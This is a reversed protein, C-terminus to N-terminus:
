KDLQGADEAFSNIINRSKVDMAKGNKNAFTILLAAMDQLFKHVEVKNVAAPIAIATGGAPATDPKNSGTKAKGKNNAGGRTETTAIGADKLLRAWYQRGSAYAKEQAETRRKPKTTGAGPQAMIALAKTVKDATPDNWRAGITLAIRTAIVQERVKPQNGGASKLAAFEADRNGQTAIMAESLALLKSATPATTKTVTKAM